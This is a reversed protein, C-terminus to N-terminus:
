SQTLRLDVVEILGSLGRLDASNLTFIPLGYALGTAAILFDVTRAGRPKRGARLVAECIRRYADACAVDFDIAAVLPEIREIRRQRRAKEIETKASVPGCVLEALTLSSVALRSPLRTRDIRDFAIAISTDIL